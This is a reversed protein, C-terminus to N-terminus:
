VLKAKAIKYKTRLTQMQETARQRGVFEVLLEEASAVAVEPAHADYFDRYMEATKSGINDTILKLVDDKIAQGNRAPMGFANILAWYLM